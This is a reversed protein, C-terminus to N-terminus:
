TVRQALVRAALVFLVAAFGALTQAEFVEKVAV